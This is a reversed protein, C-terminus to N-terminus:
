FNDFYKKVLKRNEENLKSIIEMRKPKKSSPKQNKPTDEGVWKKIMDNYRGTNGMAKKAFCLLLGKEKNFTDPENCKVVTKTGDDWYVITAPPAFIVNKPTFQGKRLFAGLLHKDAPHLSTYILSVLKENQLDM